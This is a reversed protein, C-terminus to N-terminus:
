CTIFAQQFELGSVQIKLPLLFDHVENFDLVYFFM